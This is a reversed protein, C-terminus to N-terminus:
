HAADVVLEVGVGHLGEALPFEAGGGFLAGRYVEFGYDVDWEVGWGVALGEHWCQNSNTKTPACCAAGWVGLGNWQLSGEIITLLAVNRTLDSLIELTAKSKRSNEAIILRISFEMHLAPAQERKEKKNGVERLILVRLLVFFDCTVLKLIL